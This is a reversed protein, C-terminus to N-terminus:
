AWHVENQLDRCAGDNETCFTPGGVMGIDTYKQVLESVDWTELRHGGGREPSQPVYVQRPGTANHALYSLRHRQQSRWATGSTHRM